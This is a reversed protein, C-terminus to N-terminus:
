ISFINLVKELEKIIKNLEESVNTLKDASNKQKESLSNVEKTTISSKQSIAAIDRIKESSMKKYKNISKTSSDLKKIYIIIENLKNNINKFDSETQQVSKHQELYINKAAEVKSASKKSELTIDKIIKKIIDVSESSKEALGRIEAAVVAFGRGAEGARAAEISANLSLLDTQESIAEILNIIDDIKQAKENLNQIDNIVKDSINAADKSKAKLNKVTSNANNSTNKIDDTLQNMNKISINMEEIKQSLKKMIDSAKQEEKAQKNAGASINNISHSILRSNEESNNALTNVKKSNSIVSKATNKSKQILSAIKDTMKNFGKGLIAFEDKGIIEVKTNIKGDGVKHFSNIIKDIAASINESIINSIIFSIIISLIAILLIFNRNNHIEELLSKMPIRAILKWGNNMKNYSILSNTNESIYSKNESDLNKSIKLLSNDKQVKNNKNSSSILNNNQDSIMLISNEGININEYLHNFIDNNLIFILTGITKFTNVSTLSKILYLNNNNNKIKYSWISEGKDSVARKYLSHESFDNGIVKKIDENFTSFNSSGPRYVIIGEIEKNSQVISNLQNNVEKIDMLKEFDDEYTLRSIKKMLDRNSIIMTSNKEIKELNNNINITSQKILEETYHSIKNEITARTNDYSFYGIIIVPIISLLLFFILLRTKVKFNALTKNFHKKIKFM